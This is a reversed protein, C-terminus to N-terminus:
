EKVLHVDLRSYPFGIKYKTFADNIDNIIDSKAIVTNSVNSVWMGCVLNIASSGFEKIYCINDKGAVSHKSANMVGLVVKIANPINAGYDVPVDITLRICKSKARTLNEIPEKMVYDNPVTIVKGTVTTIKTFLFDIDTVIGKMRVGKLVTGFNVWDGIRYPNFFVVWFCAVINSLSNSAAFGLAFTASATIAILPTSSVGLDELVVILAYDAILLIAIRGILKSFTNNSLILNDAIFHTYIFIIGLTAFLLVILAHLVPYTIVFYIFSDYYLINLISLCIFVSVLLLYVYKFYHKILDEKYLHKVYPKLIIVAQILFLSFLSAFYHVFNIDNLEIADYALLLFLAITQYYFITTLIKKLDKQKVVYNIFNIVFTAVIPALFLLTITKIYQDIYYLPFGFSTLPEILITLNFLIATVLVYPISYAKLYKHARVANVADNFLYLVFTLGIVFTAIFDIYQTLNIKMRKILPANLYPISYLLSTVYIVFIGLSLLFLNNLTYLKFRIFLKHILYLFLLGIGILSIASLSLLSLNLFQENQYYTGM